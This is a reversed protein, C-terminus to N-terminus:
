PSIRRVERVTVPLTCEGGQADLIRLHGKEGFGLVKGMKSRGADSWTVWEGRWLLRDELFLLIEQYDPIGSFCLVMRDQILLPLDMQDPPLPRGPIIMGGANLLRPSNRNLGIGILDGGEGLSEVLIGGVKLESGLLYIDNPYKVGFAKGIAGELVTLVSYAALITWPLIVSGQRKPMWISMSLNGPLHHWKNGPRGRGSSQLDAFVATGPAFSGTGIVSKLWNQTSDVESLHFVPPDERLLPGPSSEIM